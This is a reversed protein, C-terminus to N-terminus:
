ERGNLANEIEAADFEEPFITKPLEYSALIPEDDDANREADIMVTKLDECLSASFQYARPEDGRDAIALHIQLVAAAFNEM